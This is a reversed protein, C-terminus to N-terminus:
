AIEGAECPQIEGVILQRAGNRLTEGVQRQHMEVEISIGTQANRLVGGDPLPQDADCFEPVLIVGGEEGKTGTM